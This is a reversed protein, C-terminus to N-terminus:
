NVTSITLTPMPMILGVLGIDVGAICGAALCGVAGAPMVGPADPGPIFAWVGEAGLPDGLLPM